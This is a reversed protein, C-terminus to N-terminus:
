LYTPSLSKIDFSAVFCSGDFDLVEKTFSFSDKIIYDNSTLPKLLQDCFKALNYTPTGIASLIPHFSPIGDELAKISISKLLGM